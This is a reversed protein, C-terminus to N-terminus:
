KKKSWEAEYKQRLEIAREVKAAREPDDLGFFRRNYEENKASRAERSPYASFRGGGTEDYSAALENEIKGNYKKEFNLKAFHQQSGLAEKAKEYKRKGFFKALGGKKAYSEDLDALEKNIQEIKKSVREGEIRWGLEAKLIADATGMRATTRDLALPDSGAVNRNYNPNNSYKNALDWTFSYGGRHNPQGNYEDQYTPNTFDKSLEDLLSLYENAADQPSLEKEQKEPM